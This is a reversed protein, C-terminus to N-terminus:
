FPKYNALLAGLFGLFPLLILLTRAMGQRRYPLAVMGGLAVWLALKGWAWGPFFGEGPVAIRALLGFGGVLALLAGMGHLALLLRYNKNEEKSQGSGAHSAMAALAVLLAFVGLLHILKYTIYSM